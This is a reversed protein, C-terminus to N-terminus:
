TPLSDGESPEPRIYRNSPAPRELRYHCTCTSALVKEHCPGGKPRHREQTFLSGALPTKRAAPPARVPSDRSDRRLVPRRLVAAWVAARQPSRGSKDEPRAANQQDQWKM